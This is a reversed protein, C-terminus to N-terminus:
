SSFTAIVSWTACFVISVEAVKLTVPTRGGFFFYRGGRVPPGEPVATAGEPDAIPNKSAEVYADIAQRAFRVARKRGTAPQELDWVLDAYRARMLPHRVERARSKWHDIMAANVQKLDPWYVM